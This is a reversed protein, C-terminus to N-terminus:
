YRTHLLMSVGLAAFTVSAIWASVLPPLIGGSGLALCASFVLWYGYGIAFSVVVGVGFGGHRGIKLAFPIGFMSIVFSIFPSSFKAYMAPLLRTTDYGQRTTKEIYDKLELYSMEEPSQMEQRFADPSEELPIIEQQTFTTAVRKKPAFTRTVVKFFVWQGNVWRASEADIRKRLQFGHDFYYLTVRSLTEDQPNFGKINYIVDGGRYWIQDNYLRKQRGGKVESLIAKATRNTYPAVLENGVLCAVSLLLTYCLLPSVLRYLSVGNTRFAIIEFNRALVGLAIFTTLLVPIPAVNLVIAPVKFLFYQVVTGVGAKHTLFTDLRESLEIIFYLSVAVAFSYALVRNFERLIYRTVITM